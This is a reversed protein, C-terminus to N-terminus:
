CKELKYADFLLLAECVSRSRYHFVDRRPERSGPELVKCSSSSLVKLDSHITRQVVYFFAQLHAQAATEVTEASKGWDPLALFAEIADVQKSRISSESLRPKVSPSIRIAVAEIYIPLLRPNRAFCPGSM